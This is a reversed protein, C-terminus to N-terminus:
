YVYSVYNSYYEEYLILKIQTSTCGTTALASVLCNRIEKLSLVLTCFGEASNPLVHAFFIRPHIAYHARGVRTGLCTRSDVPLIRLNAIKLLVALQNVVRVRYLERKGELEM